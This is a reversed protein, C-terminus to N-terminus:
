LKYNSKTYQYSHICTHPNIPPVQAKFIVIHRLYNLNKFISNTPYMSIHELGAASVNNYIIKCKIDEM